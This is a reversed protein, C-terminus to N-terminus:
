EEKSEILLNKPINWEILGKENINKVTCGLKRLNKVAGLELGLKSANRQDQALNVLDKLFYETEHKEFEERSEPKRGYEARFEVIHNIQNVAEKYLIQQKRFNYLSNQIKNRAIEKEFGEELKELKKEEKFAENLAVLAQEKYLILTSLRSDIEFNCQLYTREPTEKKLVFNKDVFQSQGTPLVSYEDLFEDVDLNIEPLDADIKYDLDTIKM